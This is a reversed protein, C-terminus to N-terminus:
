NNVKFYIKFSILDFNSFLTLQSQIEFHWSDIRKIISFINKTRNMSSTHLPIQINDYLFVWRIQFNQNSYFNKDLPCSIICSSIKKLLDYFM